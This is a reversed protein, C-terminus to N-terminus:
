RTRRAQILLTGDFTQVKASEWGAAHAIVPHGRGGLPTMALHGGIVITGVYAHIEDILDLDHLAGNLQGGGEVLLNTFGRDALVALFEGLSSDTRIEAGRRQWSGLREAGAATTWVIVPAQDITNLLQCSDPLQGSRTAVIRAAVRPGPPRATLQPDDQRVTEAGVMIGDVLGRLEHVSERAKPSSIWKSDGTTTAIKGDLSMAWKAIVYPRRHRLRTLYPANLREADAQMEGVDVRIGADRLRAIGGGDVQPFPDRMAVVVRSLGSRILAETCPPTKGWHCCPELTVYMMGGRARNGAQNLAVVEAHPGGFREHFGSGFIKRDRNVVIAGVMPNPEVFGRGKAALDIAQAMVDRDTM